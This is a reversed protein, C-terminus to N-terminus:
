RLVMITTYQTTHMIIYITVMTIKQVKFNRNEQDVNM